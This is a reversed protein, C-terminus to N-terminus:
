ATRSRGTWLRPLALFGNDFRMVILCAATLFLNRLVLLFGTKSGGENSFCGCDVVMGRVMTSAIAVIFMVLLLLVAAAAKRTFLGLVLMIGSLMEAWALVLAFMNTVPVPLMKYGRVAIAFKEPDAVKDLASFVFVAGLFVRLVLVFGSSALLATLPNYSRVATSDTTM